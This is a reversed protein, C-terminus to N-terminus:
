QPQKRAICVIYPSLSRSEFWILHRLQNILSIFTRTFVSRQEWDELWIGFKGYYDLYLVEARNVQCADTLVQFKMVDLNHARYVSPASIRQVLGNLGKFNPVGIIVYGGENVLEFHKAIVEAPDAFHEILGASLVVDFPDTHLEFLDAKIVRIGDVANARCLSNVAEEDIYSDCLTAEAGYLKKFLVSFYGPFGGLELFSRIGQPVFAQIVDAFLYRPTVDLSFASAKGRWYNRWFDDNTLKSTEMENQIGTPVTNM